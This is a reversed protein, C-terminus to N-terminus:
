RGSSLRAKIWRGARQAAGVLAEASRGGTEFATRRLECRGCVLVVPAPTLRLVTGVAKGGMSTRDICGEGTVVFDCPQPFGAERLIYEAGSVLKAGYAVLGAPLGGAAGAGKMRRVDIGTRKMLIRAWDRLRKELIKVQAPTAGKQPGFVRAAGRSGLLPNEVDCLITICRTMDPTLVELAGAGGDVTASGGVGLLVRRAGRDYAHAILEGTGRTTALLPNRQRPPVLKLGSAKAMEIVATKGARLYSARVPAGLPGTVRVTVLRGGIAARLSELTGDGGDALPLLLLRADLARRLGRAILRAAELPSFTEKFANPAVVIVPRKTM